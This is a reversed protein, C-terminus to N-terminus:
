RDAGKRVLVAIAANVTDAVYIRERDPTVEIAVHACAGDLAITGVNGLLKGDRTFRKVIGESEATYVEGDAMVCTNMPNCCGGFGDGGDRSRSGFSGLEKGDRDYVAVRHKTNDAVVLDEGRLQIDFQGCCGRQGALVVKPDALDLGLRWVEYGTGFSASAGVFVERANVAIGSIRIWAARKQSVDLRGTAVKKGAQDYVALQGEGGAWVKGDASAHVAQPMFDLDWNALNEGQPSYVRIQPPQQRTKAARGTATVSSVTKRGGCAALLNGKADLCFSSFLAKQNQWTIKIPAAAVYEQGICASTALLILAASLLRPPANM